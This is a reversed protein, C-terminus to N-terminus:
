KMWNGPGSWTAICLSRTWTNAQRSGDSSTTLCGSMSRTLSIRQTLITRCWIFSVNDVLLGGLLARETDLDTLMKTAEGM